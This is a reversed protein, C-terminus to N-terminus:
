GPVEWYSMDPVGPGPPTRTLHVVGVPQNPHPAARSHSEAPRDPLAWGGRAPLGNRWSTDTIENKRENGLARSHLQTYPRLCVKVSTGTCGSRSARIRVGREEVRPLFEVKVEAKKNFDPSGSSVGKCPLQDTSWRRSNRVPTTLQTQSRFLNQAAFDKIHNLSDLKRAQLEFTIESMTAGLRSKRFRHGPKRATPPLEEHTGNSGLTEEEQCTNPILLLLAEYMLTYHPYFPSSFLLRRHATDGVEHKEIQRRM